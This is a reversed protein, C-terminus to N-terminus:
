QQKDLRNLEQYLHGPTDKNRSNVLVIRGSFYFKIEGTRAAMEYHVGLEQAKKIANRLSINRHLTM